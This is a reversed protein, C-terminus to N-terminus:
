AYSSAMCSRVACIVCPLCSMSSFVSALALAKCRWAVALPSRLSVVDVLSASELYRSSKTAVQSCFPLSKAALCCNRASSNSAILLAMSIMELPATFPLASFCKGDARECSPSKSPVGASTESRASAVLAERFRMASSKFLLASASLLRTNAASASRTDAPDSGKTFTFFIIWSKITRKISSALSSVSCLPQHSVSSEVFSCVRLSFVSATSISCASLSSSSADMAFNASSISSSVFATAARSAAIASAVLSRWSSFAFFVCVM